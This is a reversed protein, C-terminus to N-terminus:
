EKKEGCVKEKQARIYEGAAMCVHQLEKTISITTNDVALWQDEAIIAAEEYGAKRGNEYSRKYLDDACRADRDEQIAEVQAELIQNKIAHELWELSSIHPTFTTRKYQDMIFKAREKVSMM